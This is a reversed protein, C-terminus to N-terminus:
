YIDKKAWKQKIIKETEKKGKKKMLHKQKTLKGTETGEEGKENLKMQKNNRQEHEKHQGQTKNM